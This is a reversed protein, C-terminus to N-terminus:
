SFTFILRLASSMLNASSYPSVQVSAQKRRHRLTCRDECFKVRVSAAQDRSGDLEQTPRAPAAYQQEGLAWPRKRRADPNLNLPM